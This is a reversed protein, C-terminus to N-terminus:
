QSVATLELPDENAESEDKPQSEELLREVRSTLQRSTIPKTMYDSAGAEFAAERDAEQIRATLIMIPTSSAESARIKRCVDFGSMHPMMLDLILLDPKEKIVRDSGEVSDSALVTEHGARRLIMGVMMLLEPDDDIVFIRAM